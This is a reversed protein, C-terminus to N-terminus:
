GLNFTQLTGVSGGSFATAAVNTLSETLVLGNGIEGAVKATFTVVGAVASAVVSGTVAATASGNVAAVINAAVTAPTANINFQNGTAGSTVATFTTGAIVFTETNTPGTSTVTLTATAKVAGVALELTGARAGGALGRIFDSIRRTSVRPGQTTTPMVRAFAGASLAPIDISLRAISM